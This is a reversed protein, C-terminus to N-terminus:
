LLGSSPCCVGLTGCSCCGHCSGDEECQLWCSHILNSEDGGHVNKGSVIESDDSDNVDAAPELSEDGLSREQAVSAQDVSATDEGGTVCAALVCAFLLVGGVVGRGFVKKM